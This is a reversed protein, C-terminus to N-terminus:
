SERLELIFFIEKQGLCLIFESCLLLSKINNAFHLCESKQQGSESGFTMCLFKVFWIAIASCWYVLHM